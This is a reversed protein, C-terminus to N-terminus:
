EDAMLMVLWCGDDNCGNDVMTMLWWSGAAMTMAATLWRM